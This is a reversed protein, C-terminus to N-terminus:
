EDGLPELDPIGGGMEGGGGDDRDDGGDDGLGERNAFGGECDYGGLGYAVVMIPIQFFLSDDRGHGELSIIVSSPLAQEEFANWEDRNEADIGDVRQYAFQVRQFGGLLEVESEQQLNEETEPRIASSSILREAMFLSHGDTWYKVWGLGEGGRSQPAATIFDFSDPHGTFYCPTSDEEGESPFPVISRIQRTLISTAARLRASRGALDEGLPVSALATAFVSYAMAMMVGLLALSIMLELLTFGAERRM